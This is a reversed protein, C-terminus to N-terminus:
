EELRKIWEGAAEFYSNLESESVTNANKVVTKLQVLSQELSSLFEEDLNDKKRSYLEEMVYMRSQINNRLEACRRKMEDYERMEEAKRLMEMLQDQTLNKSRSDITMSIATDELYIHHGSEDVMPEGTEEDMQCVAASVTLIGNKDTAYTVDVCAEGKPLPPIGYLKLSGILLNDSAVAREGQYVRIKMRTQRDKATVYTRVTSEGYPTLRPIVVSMMKDARELGLSLPVIDNVHVITFDLDDSDDSDASNDSNDPNDVDDHPVVVNPDRTMQVARLTAGQSVAEDVNIKHSVKGSGFREGLLQAVYPIRSSGGILVVEDIDEYSRNCNQLARDVIELTKYLIPKIKNEFQVRTIHIPSDCYDSLDIDYDNMMTLNIKIDEALRSLKMKQKQNTLDLVGGSDVIFDKIMQFVVADIDDGGLHTDGDTSLVTYEDGLIGLVTVDFTGGGFDYVLLTKKKEENRVGYAIAAATPENLVCLVNVGALVGADKTARRQNDNFYAPVTIVVNTIDEGTYDRAKKVMNEIVFGSIQEPTFIEDKGEITVHIEPHNDENGTVLFPWRKMDEQVCQDTFEHGILRKVDFVTNQPNTAMMNKADYGYRRGDKTFSVVSPTINRGQSDPIMEVRGNRFISICSNSTGLDIGAIHPFM